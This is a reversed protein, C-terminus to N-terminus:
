YPRHRPVTRSATSQRVVLEVPCLVSEGGHVLLEVAEKAMLDIPQRITTLPPWAFQAALGDDFGAVSLAHPVSLGIEQAGIMVGQAYEDNFAFIADPRPERRLLFEAAAKGSLIGSGMWAFPAWTVESAKAGKEALCQLFTENRKQINPRGPPAACLGFTRHGLSWLLDFLAVVGAQENARVAPSSGLDGSPAVLVHPMGDHRLCDILARDNSLPPPLIVGDCRTQRLRLQYRELASGDDAADYQELLLHYGTTACASAASRFLDAHYLSSHDPLFIALLYSRAAALSRAAFNPSFGTERIAREVKERTADSVHRDRAIVRAVTKGSVGAIRGVEEQTVGRANRRQSAGQQM